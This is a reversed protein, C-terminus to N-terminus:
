VEALEDLKLNCDILVAKVNLLSIIPGNWIARDSLKEEEIENRGSKEFQQYPQIKKERDAAFFMYYIDEVM